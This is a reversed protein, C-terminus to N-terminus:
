GSPHPVRTQDPRSKGGFGLLSEVAIFSALAMAVGTAVIAIPFPLAILILSGILVIRVIEMVDM